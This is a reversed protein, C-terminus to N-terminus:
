RGFITQVNGGRTRVTRRNSDLIIEDIMKNGIYVPFVYQGGSSVGGSVSARASAGTNLMSAWATDVNRNKEIGLAFGEATYHGVQQMVRSPSKIGLAHKIAKEMSKAIKMMANEISKQQKTLGKVLGEAARIGADYMASSATKGAAAAANDIQKQMENIRTIDADSGSLIAGATELGGGEIGAEAIQGIITKSVGRAQLDKLAKAFASSKDVGTRMRTMVDNITALKDSGAAVGVVSTASKVGSTVSEKLASAAQKLDSLRDKAKDLATNVKALKKEYNILAKGASKLRNSLNTETKGSFAKKILSMTQNLTTVLASLNEPKALGKEFSTNKYGALRGFYSIGFSGSLEKRADKTAQSVKGGSAFKPLTGHNVRQMFAAGYKRVAAARMVFEGRSLRALLSDSTSTGPGELVGGSVSGGHAFRSRPGSGAMGGMAQNRINESQQRLSDAAEAAPGQVINQLINKRVTTITITKDTLRAVLAMIAKIVGSSADKADMTINKGKLADRAAQVKGINSKATGTEATVSFRGDPLQTVTFGLNRLAGVADATLTKVTITENNPMANAAAIVSNLGTIVEETRAKLEITKSPPLGMIKTALAGAEEATLGMGDALRVVENYGDQWNKRVQAWPANAEIAKDTSEKTTQAIQSLMNYADIGSQKTLDLQGKTMKLANTYEDQTGKAEKIKKKADLIAQQQAAQADLYNRNLGALDQIAKILDRYSQAEDSVAKSNAREAAAIADVLAKRKEYPDTGGFEGRMGYDKARGSIGKFKSEASSIKADLDTLETKLQKVTKGAFGFGKDFSKGFDEGKSINDALKGFFNFTVNDLVKFTGAILNLIGNFTRFVGVILMAATGSKLMNSTFRGIANLTAGVEGGLLKWAESLEKQNGQSMIRFMDGFGKGMAGMAARFGSMAGKASKLSAIFGPMAQKGFNGFAGIFDDVLPAAATFAETLLPQVRRAGAGVRDMAGVLADKLPLASETIVSSVTDKMQTFASKVEANGRLAFAGLAIFAGGLATVLLAGLAQAIPGILVLAAILIAAFRKSVMLKSTLKGLGGLLMGLGPMARRFGDVLPAAMRALTHRMRGSSSDVDQLRRHLVGLQRHLRTFVGGSRDIGNLEERMRRIERSIDRFNDRTIDGSDALDRANRSAAALGDSLLDFDRRTIHGAQRARTLITSMANIDRGFLSVRQRATATSASVGNLIARLQTFGRVLNHTDGIGAGRFGRTLQTDGQSQRFLRVAREEDQLAQRRAAAAIRAAAAQRQAEERLAASHARSIRRDQAVRQQAYAMQRRLEDRQAAANRRAEERLAATQLRGMAQAASQQVAIRRAEERLAAAQLRGMAQMARQRAADRQRDERMAAAQLRGITQAARQAAATDRAARQAVASHRRVDRDLYDFALRTEELQDTLSRFQVRTIDGSRGASRLDRSLLGMTRRMHEMDSRALSGTQHLQNMRQSVGQISQSLRRARESTQASSGGLRRMDRDMGQLRQQLRGFEGRAMDRVRVTLTIDDAM